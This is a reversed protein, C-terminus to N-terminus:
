YNKVITKLDLFNKMKDVIIKDIENQMNQLVKKGEQSIVNSIDSIDELTVSNPKVTVDQLTLNKKKSSFTLFKKMTNLIVFGVTEMWPSGLIIDGQNNWLIQVSFQLVFTYDEINLQLNAIDYIKNRFLDLELKETINSEPIVLQNAIKPTIYNANETPSISIIVDKGALTGKINFLAKGDRPATELFRIAKM